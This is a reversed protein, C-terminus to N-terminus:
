AAVQQRCSGTCIPRVPACEYLASRLSHPATVEAGSDLLRGVTCCGRGADSVLVCDIAVLFLTRRRPRVSLNSPRLLRVQPTSFFQSVIFHTTFMMTLRTRQTAIAIAVPALTASLLLPVTDHAMQILPADHRLRVVVRAVEAVGAAVPRRVTQTM